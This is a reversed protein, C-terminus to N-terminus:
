RLAKELHLSYSPKGKVSKVFEDNHATHLVGSEMYQLYLKEAYEKDFEFRKDQPMLAFLEDM